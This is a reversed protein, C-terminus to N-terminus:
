IRPQRVFFWFLLGIVVVVAALTGLVLGIGLGTDPAEQTHGANDAALVLLGIM